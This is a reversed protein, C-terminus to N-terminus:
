GTRIATLRPSATLADLPLGDLADIGDRRDDEPRAALVAEDVLDAKLFSAAVKPGGEVM